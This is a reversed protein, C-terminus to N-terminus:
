RLRKKQCHLADLSFVVGELRLAKLLNQVVIIESKENSLWSSMGVVIGASTSYVSAVQVFQSYAKELNKESGRITKGDVALWRKQENPVAAIAWSNFVALFEEFDIGMM